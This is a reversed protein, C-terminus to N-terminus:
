ERLGRGTLHIFVDELTKRRMGLRAIGLGQSRVSQLVEAFVDVGDASTFRLLNGQATVHRGEQRLRDM